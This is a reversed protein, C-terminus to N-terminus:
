RRPARPLAYRVMVTSPMPPYQVQVRFATFDELRWGAREATVRVVRDQDPVLDSAMGGRGPDLRDLSGEIPLRYDERTAPDLPLGGFPRGYVLAEPEFGDMLERHVLLDIMLCETPMTVLASMEGWEPGGDAQDAYRSHAAREILGFVLTMAGRQGIPGGVLEHQVSSETLVTRVAADPPSCFSRMVLYPEDASAPPEVPEIVRPAVVETGERGQKFFRFVPWGQASRLRRIDYWGSVIALDLMGPKRTSPALFQTMSRVRAQIGWVGSNGRFALRRSLELPKGTRTIGDMLLELTGRDGVHTEIMRDFDAMRARVDSLASASAGAAEMAALLIGLGEGGPVLPVAELPDHTQLVKAIKWTLNKNLKFRRSVDQPKLPDAGVSAYLSRLADRLARASSRCDAAFDQNAPSPVM